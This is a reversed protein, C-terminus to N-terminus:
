FVDYENEKDLFQLYEIVIEEYEEETPLPWHCVRIM